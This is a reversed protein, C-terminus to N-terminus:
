STGYHCLEWGNTSSQSIDLDNCDLEDQANRTRTMVGISQDM